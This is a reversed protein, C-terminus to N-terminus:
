ILMIMEEILKKARNVDDAPGSFTLKNGRALVEVNPFAGELTKLLTDNTGLLSLM